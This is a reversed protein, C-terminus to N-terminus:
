RHAPEDPKEQKSTLTRPCLRGRPDPEQEMWRRAEVILRARVPPNWGELHVLLDQIAEYTTRM